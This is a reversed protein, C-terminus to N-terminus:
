AKAVKRIKRRPKPEKMPTKKQYDQNQYGKMKERKM